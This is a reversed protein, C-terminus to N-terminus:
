SRSGPSSASVGPTAQRPDEAFTDSMGLPEFVLSRMLDRYPVDASAAMVAGLLTYGPTSYSWATGPAAM